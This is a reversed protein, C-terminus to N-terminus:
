LNMDFLTGDCRWGRDVPDFENQHHAIDPKGAASPSPLEM